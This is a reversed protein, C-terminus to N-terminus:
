NNQELWASLYATRARSAQVQAQISQEEVLLSRTMRQGDTTDVGNLRELTSRILEARRALSDYALAEAAISGKVADRARVLAQVGGDRQASLYRASLAGVRAAERDANSKGLSMSATVAVFAGTRNGDAPDTRAGTSVSVDWGSQATLRSELSAVEAHARIADSVLESISEGVDPLLGQVQSIRKLTNALQTRLHEAQEFAAKMDALTATRASLLAQEQKVNAEAKALAHRLLPEAVRLAVLESRQEIDDIQEALKEELGYARCQAQALEGLTSAQMHRSLSKRVGFTINRKGTVPDGINSFAEASGLVERRVETKANNLECFEAVSSTRPYAAAPAVDSAYAHTSALLAAVAALRLTKM